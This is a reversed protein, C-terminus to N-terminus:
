DLGCNSSWDHFQANAIDYRLIKGNALHVDFYTMGSRVLNMLEEISDTTSYARNTGLAFDPGPDQDPGTLDLIMRDDTRLHLHIGAVNGEGPVTLTLGIEDFGPDFEVLSLDLSFAPIQAEVAASRSRGLTCGTGTLNSCGTIAAPLLFALARWM